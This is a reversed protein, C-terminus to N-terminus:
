FWDPNRKLKCLRAWIRFQGIMLRVQQGSIKHYWTASRVHSGDFTWKSSNPYPLYSISKLQMDPENWRVLPVKTSWVRRFTRWLTVLLYSWTFIADSVKWRGCWLSCSFYLAIGSVGNLWRQWRALGLEVVLGIYWYFIRIRSYKKKWFLSPILGLYCECVFSFM